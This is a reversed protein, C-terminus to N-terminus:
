WGDNKKYTMGDVSFKGPGTILLIIFGALFLLAHEMEGFGDKLHVGFAAVLMVIIPPILSVRTFLGLILFIACFFEAFVVLGLSFEPSLGLFSMFEIKEGSFLMTLKPLGHTILAVGLFVRFILLGVDLLTQNYEISNIKM